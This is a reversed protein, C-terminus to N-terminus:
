PNSTSLNSKTSWDILQDLIRGLPMKYSSSTNALRIYDYPLPFSGSWRALREEGSFYAKAGKIPKWLLDPHAKQYWEGGIINYDSDLELDYYYTTTVLRSLSESENLTHSPNIEVVYKIDSIVGVLYRTNSSRYNKYPDNKVESYRVISSELSGTEKSNPNFYKLKYNYIPQNWVEYDYTADLVFSEKLGGLLHTLVIHWASPNVDFCESSVIRGASDTKPNKQNCRGGLFKYDLRAEAWLQSILGKVDHPFVRMEGRGNELSVEFSKKPEPIMISAPAWGHCIGMWTEVKGNADMFSESENWITQTLNWNSDGMLYDYKESPSLLTLTKLDRNPTKLYNEKYYELNVKFTQSRPFKPDAYRNGIGGEYYPWYYGTWPIIDISGANLHQLKHIKTEYEMGVFNKILDQDSLHEFLSFDHDQSECPKGAPSAKCLSKKRFSDKIHVFNKSQIANEDFLRRNKVGEKDPMENSAAEPDLSFRILYSPVVGEVQLNSELALANLDHLFFVMLVLKSVDKFVCKLILFLNKM